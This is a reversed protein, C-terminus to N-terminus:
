TGDTETATKVSAGPPPASSAGFAYQWGGGLAKYLAVLARTAQTESLALQTQAELLRREADLVNIFSDVGGRYRVRALRAARQSARAAVQLRDRRVIERTYRVIANQTEELARLVTRQYLAVRGSAQAETARIRARVSRLDFAAWSLRPGFAYEQSSEELLDEISTSTYGFSGILAVRPFLDAVQVGIRATASALRREAAFIDPRRRLLSAPDGIHVIIPIHPLREPETLEARLASPPRGVLVSLRHITRAVEAELPPITALTTALQARARAIDLATGRGGEFLTQTLEFTQEQNRANRQAVALQYQAGRLEVYTRAVEAAVSIFVAYQQARFADYDAALAEISRRIRGFFDLEWSADLGADYFTQTRDFGGAGAGFGTTGGAESFKQRTVGGGATVIPFLQYRQGELVARAARLNARAVRLDHNHRISRIILENLQEDGLQAWWRIEPEARNLIRSDAGYFETPSPAGPRRYDPGVMCASLVACGVMLMTRRLQVRIQVNM